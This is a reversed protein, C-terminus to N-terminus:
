AGNSRHVVHDSFADVLRPLVRRAGAGLTVGVFFDGVIGQGEAGLEVELTCGEDDDALDFQLYAAQVSRSVAVNSEVFECVLRSPASWEAILWRTWEYGDDATALIEIGPAPTAGLLKVETLNPFWEPWTAFDTLITWIYAAPADYGQSTYYAAM